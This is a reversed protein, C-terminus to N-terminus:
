RTPSRIWQIEEWQQAKILVCKFTYTKQKAKIEKAISLCLTDFHHVDNANQQSTRHVIPDM